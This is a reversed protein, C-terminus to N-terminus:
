RRRGSAAAIAERPGDGQEAVGDYDGGQSGDPVSQLNPRLLAPQFAKAPSPEVAMGARTFMPTPFPTATKHEIGFFKQRRERSRADQEQERWMWVFKVYLEEGLMDRMESLTPLYIVKM